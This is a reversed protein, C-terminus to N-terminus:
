LTSERFVPTTKVYSYTFSRDPNAIRSLLVDAALCGIDSSPIIASTLKPTVVKSEPSDDFGTIMVDTPINLGRDQIVHYLHIAHFDNICFFADPMYPMANIKQSIWESDGYPSNDNEIICINKDVSLNAETLALTFGVWREYFSNCHFIDGIFGIRKAGKKIMHKTLEISSAINEMSIIDCKILSHNTNYSGDIIITPFGKQCIEDLYDKDFLEICLLGGTNEKTIRPPLIKQAIEQDSLEYLQVTYGSRCIQDSFSKIFFSGFNHNLSNSHTLVAISQSFGLTSPNEKDLASVISESDKVPFSEMPIQSYGLERAKQIVIQKTSEPVSGRGNFIKSVTNRSLGCADAIDQMTIRKIAM